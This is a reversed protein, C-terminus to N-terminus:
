EAAPEGMRQWIIYDLDPMQIGAANSLGAAEGRYQASHTLTQELTDAVTGEFEKGAYNQYRYSGSFGNAGEAAAVQELQRRAAVFWEDRTEPSVPEWLKIKPNGMGLIRSSWTLETELLHQFARLASEPAGKAKLDRYLVANAWANYALRTILSVSMGRTDGPDTGATSAERSPRRRVANPTEISM